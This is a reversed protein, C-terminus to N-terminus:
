LTRLWLGRQPCQLLFLVTLIDVMSLIFILLAIFGENFQVISIHNLTWESNGHLIVDNSEDMFTNHVAVTAVCRYRGFQNFAVPDIILQPDTEGPIMEFEGTSMNMREWHYTPTPFGTAMCSFEVRDGEEVFMEMLQNTVNPLIYLRVTELVTVAPNNSVCAYIGGDELEIDSVVLSPDNTVIYPNSPM